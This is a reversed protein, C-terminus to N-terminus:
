HFIPISKVFLTSGTLMKVVYIGIAINKTNWNVSHSGPEFTKNILSATKHGSLDYIKIDVRDSHSLTFDIIANPNSGNRDRIKFHAQLMVKLSRQDAVGTIESISRRWVGGDYTGAFLTSDRAALGAINKNTLGNNFTAWSKGNNTSLYIGEGYIGMFVANGSAAILPPYGPSLPGSYVQTWYNNSLFMNAKVTLVYVGYSTAAFITSDTIAFSFVRLSNNYLDVLGNNINFWSTGNNISFFIGGGDSAAFINNGIATFAHISNYWDALGVNATTWTTGNDASKFVGSTNGTFITDGIAAVTFGVGNYSLTCVETWNNGKDVSKFIGSRNTEGWSAAFIVDGNTALSTISMDTIGKNAENWSVGNNTSYFVGDNNGAFITSDSFAFAGISSNIFGNNSSTWTTGNNNSIFVGGTTGAFITSDLVAFSLVRRNYLDPFTSKWSLNSGSDTARYISSDGGAFIANDKFIISHIETKPIGSNLNSWTTGSDTSLFVGFNTGAYINIGKVALCFINVSLGSNAQMWNAANDTSRFVKTNFTGAYVTTGCVALCRIWTDYFDTSLGNNAAAWTRGNDNSLYIGNSLTGVFINDGNAVISQVEGLEQSSVDWNMGNDASQFVRKVTGAFLKNGIVTLANVHETIGKGVAIWTLGKDSSVYIGEGGAFVNRDKVAFAWVDGGGPGNTQVWDAKVSHSSFILVMISVIWVPNKNM